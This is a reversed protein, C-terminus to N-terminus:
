HPFGWDKCGGKALSFTRCGASQDDIAPCVDLLGRRCLFSVRFLTAVISILLAPDCVEAFPGDSHNVPVTRISGSNWAGSGASTCPALTVKSGPARVAHCVWGSPCVSM